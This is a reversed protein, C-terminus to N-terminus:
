EFPVAQKVAQILLNEGEELQMYVRLVKQTTEQTISKDGIIVRYITRNSFGTLEATRKVRIANESDRKKIYGIKKTM